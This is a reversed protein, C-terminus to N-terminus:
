TQKRAARMELWARICIVIGRAVWATLYGCLFVRADHSM